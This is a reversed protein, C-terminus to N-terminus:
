ALRAIRENDGAVMPQRGAEPTAYLHVTPIGKATVGRATRRDTLRTLIGSGNWHGLWQPLSEIGRPEFVLSWTGRERSYSVVGEILGRGYARSSEILVAVRRTPHDQAESM